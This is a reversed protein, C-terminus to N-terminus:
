VYPSNFLSLAFIANTRAVSCRKRFIVRRDSWRVMFPTVEELELVVSSPNLAALCPSCARETTPVQEM